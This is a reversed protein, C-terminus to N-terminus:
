GAFAAYVYIDGNTGNMGSFSNNIKFGDSLFDVDNGGSESDFSDALLREDRPNSGPRRSDHIEWSGGSTIRKTLLYGVRFGTTVLPGDDSGNAIYSGFKSYGERESWCYAVYTSGGANIEPNNGLYVVSSSPHQQAFLFSGTDLPNAGSLSLAGLSTSAHYVPWGNSSNRRKCIVFRPATSLGHGFSDGSDSNATGSGDGTYTVISFGYTENVSVQSTITGDSNSVAPGGAKWCWAVWDGSGNGGPDTGLSFGDSNFASVGSLTQEANAGNSFIYKGAGRVSDFIGHSSGGTRHKYWVLDPQFKLGTVDFPVGNNGTYLVTDFGNSPDFGSAGAAIVGTSSIGGGLSILSSLPSM